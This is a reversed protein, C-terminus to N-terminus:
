RSQEANQSLQVALIHGVDGLAERLSEISTPAIGGAEPDKWALPLKRELESFLDEGIAKLREEDGSLLELGDLLSSFADHQSALEELDAATSSKFKVKEVWISEHGVQVALNRIENIWYERRGVFEAHAPGSGVTIIRAALVRDDLSATEEQLREGLSQLVEDASQAQSIDVELREWRVVDLTLHELSELQGDVLTVLTAGKSGTERAHRGQLNGPYVVYPEECLIERQHIHGLAWYDYGLSKLGDLTCPAYTAHGPRGELGTHLLGINFFGPQAQPYNETLDEWMVPTKFGQGHIAVQHEEFHVTEPEDVSLMTVNSPLKLGRTIKSQADHNGCIAVVPIGAQNLRTMQTTFFLGTNYDPWDGDYLDGALLLLDVKLRIAKDVLNVFARRTAGRLTEEPAGEYRSLGRLPSDLHIDAAHIFRM